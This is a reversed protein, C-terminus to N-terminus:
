YGTKPLTKSTLNRVITVWGANGTEWVSGYKGGADARNTVQYGSVASPSVQVTLTPQTLSQFGAPVTGFDFYVDTGVEGFSLPLASLRYSHNNTTLLNSALVRYDNYNTKYLIRYNLRQNYAGTTLVALVEGVRPEPLPM